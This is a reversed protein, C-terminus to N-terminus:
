GPLYVPGLPSGTIERSMSLFIFDTITLNFPGAPIVIRAPNISLKTDAM